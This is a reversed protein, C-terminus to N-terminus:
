LVELTAPQHATTPGRTLRWGGQVVGAIVQGVTKQFLTSRGLLEDAGQHKGASVPQAGIVLGASQLLIGFVHQQPTSITSAEGGFGHPIGDQLDTAVEFATPM